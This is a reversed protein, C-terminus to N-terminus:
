AHANKVKIATILDSILNCYNIYKSTCGFSNIDPLNTMLEAPHLLQLHQISRELVTKYMLHETQFKRAFELLLNTNQILHMKSTHSKVLVMDGIKFDTKDPDRTPHYFKDRATILNLIAMM